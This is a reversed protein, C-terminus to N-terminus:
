PRSEFVRVFWDCWAVYEGMIAVPELPVGAVRERGEETFSMLVLAHLSANWQHTPDIFKGDRLLAPENEDGM